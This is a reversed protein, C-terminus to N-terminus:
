CHRLLYNASRLDDPFLYVNENTVHNRSNKVKTKFSSDGGNCFLDGSDLCKTRNMSEDKM